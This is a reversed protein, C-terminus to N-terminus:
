ILVFAIQPVRHVNINPHAAKLENLIRVTFKRLSFYRRTDFYEGNVPSECIGNEELEEENDINGIQIINNSRRKM